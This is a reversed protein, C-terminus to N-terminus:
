ASEGLLGNNIMWQKHNAIIKWHAELEEPTFEFEVRFVRAPKWPMDPTLQTHGIFLIWFIVKTCKLALCYGAAQWVWNKFGQEFDHLKKCSKTTLKYEHLTNLEKDFGDPTMWVDDYCVEGPREVGHLMKVKSEYYRAWANELLEEWAFGAAIIAATVSFDQTLERNQM